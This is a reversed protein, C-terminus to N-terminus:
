YFKGSVFRVWLLARTSIITPPNVHGCLLPDSLLEAFPSDGDRIELYDCTCANSTNISENVNQKCPAIHFNDFQISIKYDIPGSITYHCDLLSGYEMATNNLTYKPMNVTLQINKDCKPVFLILASFGQHGISSDSKFKVLAKNTQINLVPAISTLNGCLRAKKNAELEELGEFVEVYDLYCEYGHELDFLEFRIVIKKDEPAIINWFCTLYPQYSNTNPLPIVGISTSNSITAGCKELSYEFKFGKKELFGDSWFIISIKHENRVFHLSDKWCYTGVPTMLTPSKGYEYYKYITINDYQCIRSTDELEFDVFKVYIIEEKKAVLTYNCYINKPYKDPYHPSTLTQIIDTADFVGGCNQSWAISFGDGVTQNDTRFIIKIQEGTSNFSKPLSRGCFRGMSIWNISNIMDFVEVYDKSCNESAQIFFRDVFVLGIHFGIKAKIEWICEINNPYYSGNMPSKLNFIPAEIIGGCVSYSSEINLEFSSQQDYNKAYYEIFMNHGNLSIETKNESNGCIRKLKPSTPNLGNYIDIYENNCDFISNSVTIQVQVNVNTKFQWACMLEGYNDLFSPKVMVYSMNLKIIEGCNHIKYDIQYQGKSMSFIFPKMKIKTNQFPSAINEFFKTGDSRCKSQISKLKYHQDYYVVVGPDLGPTCLATENSPLIEKLKIALTGFGIKNEILPVTRIYECYYSSINSPSYITGFNDNLNGTCITPEDSSFNFKFGRHNINSFFSMRILMINDSSYIDAELDNTKLYKIPSLYSYDNYFGIRQLRRFINRLIGSTYNEQGIIRLDIDLIHVRVRRGKPVTIKWECFMRNKKGTPYGPSKIIGSEAIISGGCTETTVSYLIKFGKHLNIRKKTVFRILIEPGDVVLSFQSAYTGCYIGFEDLQEIEDDSPMINYVIIHDTENCNTDTGPLDIELFTLNFTTGTNGQIRYDCQSNSPYAGLGPFNPSKIIGNTSGRYFGGCKAIMVNAKFGNKPITVDTFYKVTVINSTSIITSPTTNCYKGIEHSVVLGGDRIEVYEKDCNKTKTLDFREVFDIRILEGNPAKIGWICEIHSNPINPYNPSSITKNNQNYTLIITEDCDLSVEQYELVFDNRYRRKGPYYRVYALNSNTELNNIITKNTGCYQGLGLIPSENDIGNRLIIYGDCLGDDKSNINLEIFNFKITHGARVNITWECLNNSIVFGINETMNKSIIGNPETIPGGCSRGVVALFGTRNTSYDSIFEVKLYPTGHFFKLESPNLKCVKEIDNYVKLDMSTMIKVYDAVCNDVDELDVVVLQLAARYGPKASILTWACNEYSGYGYPYGTSSINILNPSDIYVISNATCNLTNTGNNSTDVSGDYKGIQTWRLKFKTESMGNVNWTLFVANTTSIIANNPMEDLDALKTATEDYGDFIKSFSVM